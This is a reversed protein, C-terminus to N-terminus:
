FRSADFCNDEDIMKAGDIKEQLDNISLKGNNERASGFIECLFYM